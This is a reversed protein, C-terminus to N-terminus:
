LTCSRVQAAGVRRAGRESALRELSASLATALHTQVLALEDDDLADSGADVAVSKDTLTPAIVGTRLPGVRFTERGKVDIHACSCLGAALATCAIVVVVVRARQM